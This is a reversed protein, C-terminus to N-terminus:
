RPVLGSCIFSTLLPNSTCIAPMVSMLIYKPRDNTYHIRHLIKCQILRHRACISSSHVLELICDWEGNSLDTGLDQEWTNKTQTPLSPNDSGMSGYIISIGKWQNPDMTLPVDTLTQHPWNPFHLFQKVFDRMFFHFLHSNPLRYKSSLENFSSFIGNLVPM